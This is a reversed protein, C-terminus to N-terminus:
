NTHPDIHPHLYPRQTGLDRLRKTEPDGPRQTESDRLRQTELPTWNESTNEARRDWREREADHGFTFLFKGAELWLYLEWTLLLQFLSAPM